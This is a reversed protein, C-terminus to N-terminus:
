FGASCGELPPSKRMAVVPVVVQGNVVTYALIQFVSNIAVVLPLAERDGCPLDNWTLVM